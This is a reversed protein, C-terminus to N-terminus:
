FTGMAFSQDGTESARQSFQEVTQVLGCTNSLSAIECKADELSLISAALEAVWPQLLTALLPRLISCFSTGFGAEFCATKRHRM